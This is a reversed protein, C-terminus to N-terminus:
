QWAPAYPGKPDGPFPIAATHRPSGAGGKRPYPCDTGASFWAPPAEPVAPAPLAPKRLLAGLSQFRQAIPHEPALRLRPRNGKLAAKVALFACLPKGPHPDGDPRSKVACRQGMFTGTRHVRAGDADAEAPVAGLPVAPGEQPCCFNQPSKVASPVKFDATCTGGIHGQPPVASGAITRMGGGIQAM